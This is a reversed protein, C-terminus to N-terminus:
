KNQQLQKEFGLRDIQIWYEVIKNNDLRYVASAIETLAKGTPAYGDIGTLHKGKQIWRVYVKDGESILETIEFSFNGYMTLFEKVHESYNEPTRKVAIQEEANMQHALVTDAMFLNAKDPTKGSRVTELFLKVTERNRESSTKEIKATAAIEINAKAPLDAVAICVRSPFAGKFYSSYIKNTLQYNDMSKLYITVSVLDNYGLREKELLIGINKMVQQVEAEFSSNVLKGTTEDIGVQGSIFVFDNASIVKSFPLPSTINEQQQAMTSISKILLYIILIGKM